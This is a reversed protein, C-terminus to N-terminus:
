RHSFRYWKKKAAGLMRCVILAFFMSAASCIWVAVIIDFPDKAGGAHRLAIVTSPMLSLPATNMVAFTIMDNDAGIKQMARMARIGLPTAANGIGLVNAAVSASIAGSAEASKSAAPFFIKTLPRIVAALVNGAGAADLVSMVGNWLGMMGCLSLTLAVARQAGDILAVSLESLRGTIISFVLSVACIVAFVVNLM